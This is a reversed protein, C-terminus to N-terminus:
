RGAWPWWGSGPISGSNPSLENVTERSSKFRLPVLVEPNTVDRATLAIWEAPLTISPGQDSSYTKTMTSAATSADGSRRVGWNRFTGM